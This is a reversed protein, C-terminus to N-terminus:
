INEGLFVVGHQGYGITDRRDSNIFYNMPIRLPATLFCFIFDLM